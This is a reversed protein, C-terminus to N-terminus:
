WYNYFILIKNYWYNYLSNFKIDSKLISSATETDKVTWWLSYLTVEFIRLLRSVQINTERFYYFIQSWCSTIGTLFLDSAWFFHKYFILFVTVEPSFNLFCPFIIQNLIREHDTRKVWTNFIRKSFSVNKCFFLAVTDDYGMSVMIHALSCCTTYIFVLLMLVSIVSWKLWVRNKM